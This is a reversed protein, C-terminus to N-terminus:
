EAAEKVPQKLKDMLRALENEVERRAGVKLQALHGKQGEMFQELLEPDVCFERLADRFLRYLNFHNRDGWLNRNSARELEKNLAPYAEKKIKGREDLDVWPSGCHYLYRAIGWRVGARKFSDSLSGKESEIRTDGAGDAKWIWDNGFLLGIECITTGGVQPYRCQWNQPGMVFDLRDMVDRADIYALAQGRTAKEVVRGNERKANDSGIRWSVLEPMFPEALKDYATAQLVEELTPESM